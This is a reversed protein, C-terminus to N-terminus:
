RIAIPPKVLRGALRRKFLGSAFKHLRYTLGIIRDGKAKPRGVIKGFVKEKDKLFQTKLRGSGALSDSHIRFAALSGEFYHFRAGALALDTWLEGDWCTTNDENFGGTNQFALRRFFAAQQMIMCAGYAFRRLNWRDSFIPKVKKITADTLYGDAYVVDSLPHEHFESAIKQFCEPFYFDDSNLYGLIEGTAHRFGKNLGAAAGGDPECCWYALWEQYKRIIEVSGDTSGADILIYELDPYGQLLISRIAEELFHAQNYSITVISIKPWPNGEPTTEALKPSEETWPWGARESPPPPLESLSPCQM